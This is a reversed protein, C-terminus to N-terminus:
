LFCCGVKRRAVGLLGILAVILEGGFLESCSHESLAPWCLTLRNGTTGAQRAVSINDATAACMPARHGIAGPTDSGELAM